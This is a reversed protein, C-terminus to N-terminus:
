TLELKREKTSNLYKFVRLMSKWAYNDPAHAVRSLMQTAFGIDPRVKAIWLLKGLFRRYDKPRPKSGDSPNLAINAPLPTDCKDEQTLGLENLASM